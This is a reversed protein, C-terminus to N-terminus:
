FFILQHEVRCHTIDTIPLDRSHLSMVLFNFNKQKFLTPTIYYAQMCTNTHMRSIICSEITRYEITNNHEHNLFLNLGERDRPSM